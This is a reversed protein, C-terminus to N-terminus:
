VPAVARVNATSAVVVLVADFTTARSALPLKAAPVIVASRVPVAEVAVLRAAAVLMNAPLKLMLGVDTPPVVLEVCVNVRM